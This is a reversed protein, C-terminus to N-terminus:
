KKTNEPTKAHSCEPKPSSCPQSCSATKATHDCKKECCNHAAAGKCCHESSGKCCDGSAGKHCQGMKGGGCCDEGDFCFQVHFDKKQEDTLMNRVANCSALCDKAFQAKMKYIEDIKNGIEAESKGQMVMAKLDLKAKDLEAKQTIMKKQFEFHMQQIKAKQADTLNPILDCCQGGKTMCKEGAMVPWTFLIMMFVTVLIMPLNTKRSM